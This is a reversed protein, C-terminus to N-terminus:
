IMWPEGTLLAAIGGCSIMLLLLSHACLQTIDSTSSKMILELLLCVARDPADTLYVRM